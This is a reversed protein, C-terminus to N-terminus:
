PGWTVSLGQSLNYTAPTCFSVADRYWVQYHRVDGNAIPAGAIHIPNPTLGGPYSATSGTPFVVGLRVIGVAACLQGDGFAIPSASLGTGQFFLGPGPINTATLVLTDTGASAGPNGTATLRTGSAFSSNACGNGASGFNGCPCAAGTGDGLCFPASSAGTFVLQFANVAGSATLGEVQVLIQGGMVNVHHLAYTTGLVHPSGTWFGGVNQAPDPSGAVAVRTLVGNNEPAWAYTYLTYNGDQLGNFTWSWPGGIVPLSQIDVMLNYDDGTLTSPFHNYSSSQTSTTTVSTPAGNLDALTGSFPSPLSNWVGPQAAAGAYSSVPVPFIILNSGVDINFSQAAATSSLLALLILTRMM